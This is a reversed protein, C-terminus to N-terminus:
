RVKAVQRKGAQERGAHPKYRHHVETLHKRNVDPRVARGDSRNRQREAREDGILNEQEHGVVVTEIDHEQKEGDDIEGTREVCVLVGDLRLALRELLDLLLQLVDDAGALLLGFM